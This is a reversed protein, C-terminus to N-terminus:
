LALTLKRKMLNCAAAWSTAAATEHFEFAESPNFDQAPNTFGHRADDFKLLEWEWGNQRFMRECAELEEQKVFPDCAGHCILAHPRSKSTKEANSVSEYGGASSSGEDEINDFVGHFTVVARMGSINMRAIELCPHGGMCFGMAGLRNTDVGELTSLAEVSAQIRRQLEERVNSGESSITPTLLEDRANNYRSRDSDWAWGIDDSIIDAILVVCDRLEPNSVLSEAKWRLFIDQPGAGTHFILIGPASPSKSAEPRVAYGYLPTGKNTRYTVPAGIPKTKAPRSNIEAEWKRQVSSAFDADKALRPAGNSEHPSSCLDSPDSSILESLSSWSLEQSSVVASGSMTLSVFRHQHQPHPLTPDQGRVSRTTTTFGSAPETLSPCLLAFFFVKIRPAQKGQPTSRASWRYPDPETVFM